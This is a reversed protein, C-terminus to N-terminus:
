NMKHLNGPFWMDRGLGFDFSNGHIRKAKSCSDDLLNSARTFFIPVMNSDCIIRM